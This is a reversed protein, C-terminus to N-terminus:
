PSFVHGHCLRPSLHHCHRARYAYTTVTALAICVHPPLPSRSRTHPPLPPHSACIHHCHSARACTTATALAICTHPPLPLRSACKTTATPSRTSTRYILHYHHCTAHPPLHCTTSKELHFCLRSSYFLLINTYSRLRSSHNVYPNPKRAIEDLKTRERRYVREYTDRLLQHNFMSINYGGISSGISAHWLRRQEAMYVQLARREVLDRSGRWPHTVIGGFFGSLIDIRDDTWGANAAATVLLSCSTCVVEWPLDEDDLVGRAPQATTQWSNTGDDNIVMVMSNSDAAVNSRRASDLGENTVYWLPIYEGKELKKVAYSSLVDHPQMPIGRDLPIPLYKDKNRKREEKAHADLEQASEEEKATDDLQQQLLRAQTEALDADVQLQWNAKEKDNNIQWINKLIQAAQAADTNGNILLQVTQAHEALDYDPCQLANPDQQIRPM